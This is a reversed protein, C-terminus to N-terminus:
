YPEIGKITDGMTAEYFERLEQQIEDPENCRLIRIALHRADHLKIRRILYKIHALSGMSVSLDAAGLGILLPAWLPDGALEGCVSVPIKKMKGQQFIFNLTRVVSPQCPEYLYAIRDNIRDVALLYQMLDNTGISFFDCHAGLMDTIVAASPVEIMAGKEINKDYPVGLSDLESMAEELIANALKLESLSCIMPYLVKVKGYHSARLIARLQNKFVKTNELCFRIGRFGMFPNAEQYGTLSKHPNKDGGLDLTRITVPHSGVSQALERYVEFQEEEGPFTDAYLFINETRFLGVGTAGSNRMQTKDEIGEVNLLLHYEFDDLTQCPLHREADYLEQV